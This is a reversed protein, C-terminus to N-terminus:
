PRELVYGYRSCYERTAERAQEAQSGLGAHLNPEYRESRHLFDHIPEPIRPDLGLQELLSSVTPSPDGDARLSEYSVEVLRGAAVSKSLEEICTHVAAFEEFVFGPIETAGPVPEVGQAEGMRVWLDRTSQLVPDPNRTVVVFHAEPFRQALLGVRWSNPPSKFVIRTESLAERRLSRGRKRRPRDLELWRRLAVLKMFSEFLGLYNSGGRAADLVALSPVLTRWHTAPFAFRSYISRLGCNLLAFEEEQPSTWRLRVRDMPRFRPLPMFRKAFRENLLLCANPAFCELANPATLRPHRSLLEHLFTTGTRWHGIIFIPHRLLRSSELAEENRKWLRSLWARQVISAVSNAAALLCGLGIAPLRRATVKVGDQVAGELMRLWATLNSGMWFRLLGKTKSGLRTSAAGLVQRPSCFDCWVRSTGILVLLLVGSIALRAGEFFEQTLPTAGGRTSRLDNSFGQVESLAGYILCVLVLVAVISSRILIWTDVLSEVRASRRARKTTLISKQLEVSKGLFTGLIGLFLILSLGLQNLHTEYDFTPRRRGFLAGQLFDGSLCSVGFALIGLLMPVLATWHLELFGRKWHRRRAGFGVLAAAGIAFWILSSAGSM